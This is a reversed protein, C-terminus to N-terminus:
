WELAFIIQLSHLPIQIWLLRIPLRVSLWKALKALIESVAGAKLM